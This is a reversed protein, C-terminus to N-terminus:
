DESPRGVNDIIARVADYIKRGDRAEYARSLEDGLTAEHGGTEEDTSPEDEPDSGDVLGDEDGVDEDSTDGDDPGMDMDDEEESTERPGKPAKRGKDKKIPAFLAGPKIMPM